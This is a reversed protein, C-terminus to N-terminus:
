LPPASVMHSRHVKNPANSSSIDMFPLVELIIILDSKGSNYPSCVKIGYIVSCGQLFSSGFLTKCIGPKPCTISLQM